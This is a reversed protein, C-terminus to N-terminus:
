STKGSEDKLEPEEQLLKTCDYRKCAERILDKPKPAKLVTTMEGMRDAFLHAKAVVAQGTPTEYFAVLDTLEKETYIEAVQHVLLDMMAPEREHMWDMVAGTMADLFEPPLAKKGLDAQQREVQQMMLPTLRNLMNDINNQMHAAAVYRRALELMQPTPAPAATPAVAPAAAAQAALAPTAAFMLGALAALVAFKMVFGGPAFQVRAM